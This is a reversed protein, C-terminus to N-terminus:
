DLVAGRHPRDAGSRIHDNPEFRGLMVRAMGAVFRDPDGSGRTLVAIAADPRDATAALATVAAARMRPHPHHAVFHQALEVGDGGLMAAIRLLAESPSLTLVAAIRNSALDFRHQNIWAQEADVGLINLSVSFTDPPWQSHVDRQMRYLMLQGPKLRAHEEFRLGADDGPVGTVADPDFRYYDSWYGPGLYGFTLFSFNHDHPLGYVFAAEGSSRLAQDERAPWLNARVIFRGDPPALLMVQPGYGAAPDSRHRRKLEDVALDGLFSRNRGLRALLPGLTAFAAEDRVDIRATGLAEMLEALDIPGDSGPELILPM